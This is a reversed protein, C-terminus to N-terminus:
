KKYRNKRMEKITKKMGRDFDTEYYFRGDKEYYYYNRGASVTCGIYNMTETDEKGPVSRANEQAKLILEEM